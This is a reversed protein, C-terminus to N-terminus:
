LILFQTASISVRWALFFRDNKAQNEFIKERTMKM